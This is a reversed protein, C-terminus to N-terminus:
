LSEIRWVGDIDRRFRMSFGDFQGPTATPVAMLFEASNRSLQGSVIEGLRNATSVLTNAGALASWLTQMRTRQTSIQTNL